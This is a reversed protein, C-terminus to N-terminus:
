TDKGIATQVLIAVDVALQDGQPLREIEKARRTLGCTTRFRTERTTWMQRIGQATEELIRMATMVERAVWTKTRNCYTEWGIKAMELGQTRVTKREHQDVAIKM